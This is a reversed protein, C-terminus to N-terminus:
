GLCLPRISLIGGRSPAKVQGEQLRHAQYWEKWGLNLNAPTQQLLPAQHVCMGFVDGGNKVAVRPTAGTRKETKIQVHHSRNSRELADLLDQKLAGLTDVSLKMEDMDMKICYSEWKFFLDQTTLSHLRMISQLEVLVNHELPQDAAAFRENLEQIEAEAM